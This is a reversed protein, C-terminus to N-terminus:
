FTFTHLIILTGSSSLLALFHVCRHPSEALCFWGLHLCVCPHLAFRLWSCICEAVRYDSLWALNFFVLEEWRQHMSTEQYKRADVSHSGVLPVRMQHSSTPSAMLAFLSRAFVFRLSSIPTSCAFSVALQHAATGYSCTIILLTSVAFPVIM